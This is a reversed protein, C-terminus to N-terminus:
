RIWDPTSESTAKLNLTDSCCPGGDVCSKQRAANEKGSRMAMSRSYLRWVRPVTRGRQHDALIQTEDVSKWNYWNDVSTEVKHSGLESRADERRSVM